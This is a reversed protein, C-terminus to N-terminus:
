AITLVNSLSKIFGLFNPTEVMITKFEPTFTYTVSFTKPQLKTRPITDILIMRPLIIEKRVWALEILDFESWLANTFKEFDLCIVGNQKEEATLLSDSGKLVLSDPKVSTYELLVRFRKKMKFYQGQKSNKVCTKKIANLLVKFSWKLGASFDSFLAPEGSPCWTGDLWYCTYIYKDNEM